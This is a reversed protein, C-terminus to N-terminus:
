GHSISIVGEIGLSSRLNWSGDSTNGQPEFACPLLQLLWFIVGLRKWFITFCHCRPMGDTGHNPDGGGAVETSTGRLRELAEDLNSQM